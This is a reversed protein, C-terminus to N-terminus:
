ARKFGQVLATLRMQVKEDARADAGKLKEAKLKGSEGRTETGRHQFKLM